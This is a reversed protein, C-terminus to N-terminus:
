HCPIKMKTALKQHSLTGVPRTILDPYMHHSINYSVLKEKVNVQRNGWILENSYSLVLYHVM